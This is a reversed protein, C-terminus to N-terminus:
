AANGKRKPRVGLILLFVSLILLIVVFYIWTVASTYGLGEYDKVGFLITQIRQMVPSTPFTSLLVITYVANLVTFQNVAPFTIAWFTQWTSAGDIKAAEYVASSNKQLGSLYVLIQVGSFWLVTSINELLFRIMDYVPGIGIEKVWALAQSKELDMMAFANNNELMSMLTGSIIIVPLFYVARFIGRLRIKQNLLLALILALVIILPTMIVVSKATELLAELLKFDLTLAYIFNGIGMPATAIGQSTITVKQTSMYLSFVLPFLTFVLFGILWHTTFLYGYRAKRKELSTRKKKM